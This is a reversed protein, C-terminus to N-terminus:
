GPRWLRRAPGDAPGKGSPYSVLELQLGWPALFYVWRSGMAAGEAIDNIGGQVRVGKARLHAVAADIDDVYFCLHHGGVDSNKPPVLNQEPSTYQFVEFNPTDGCKLFCYRFSSRPDVNLVDRFHAPDGGFEGGDFVYECGVVDVFFRVAEDLDPVTIGVHELGRIGPIGM